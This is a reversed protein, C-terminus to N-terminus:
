RGFIALLWGVHAIRMPRRVREAVAKDHPSISHEPQYPEDSITNANAYSSGSPM